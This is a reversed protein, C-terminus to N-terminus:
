ARSALRPRAVELVLGGAVVAGAVLQRDVGVEARDGVQECVPASAVAANGARVRRDLRLDPFPALLDQDLHHEGGAVRVPARLLEVREQRRTRKGGGQEWSM